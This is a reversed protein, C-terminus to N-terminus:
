EGSPGKAQGALFCWGPNNQHYFRGGSGLAWKRLGEKIEKSNKKKLFVMSALM